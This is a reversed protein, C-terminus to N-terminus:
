PWHRKVLFAVIEPNVTNGVARYLQAGGECGHPLKLSEGLENDDNVCFGNLRAAEIPCFYRLSGSLETMSDLSFKPRDMEDFSEALEESELLVSGTGNVYKTYARTFCLCQMSRPAVVDFCMAARKSLLSEPIMLKAQIRESHNECLFNAIRRQAQTTDLYEFSQMHPDNTFIKFPTADNGRLTAVIFLRLRSNPFGMYLPNLFYGVLSYQLYELTTKLEYFSDSVEFNKVNEVIILKPLKSGKMLRMVRILHHLPKARDDFSGRMGGQRTYPQCPPSMTWIDADTKLLWEKTISSIDLCQPFDSFSSSYIDNCFNNLDVAKFTVHTVDGSEAAAKTIGCRMGGIGSFLELM